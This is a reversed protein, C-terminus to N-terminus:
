RCRGLAGFARRMAAVDKVLVVRSEDRQMPPLYVIVSAHTMGSVPVLRGTADKRVFALRRAPICLPFDLPIPAAEDRDASAVGPNAGQTTQLIEISFGLFVAEEVRGAHWEGALQWWWRKAASEVGVHEHGPPLGCAGTETCGPSAKSGKVVRRGLSDCHGGPPNLFVKGKWPKSLGDAGASGAGPGYFRRAKVRTNAEASSAPDLDIGGMLARAAEIVDTPTMWEESNSTHRPNALARLDAYPRVAEALKKVAKNM